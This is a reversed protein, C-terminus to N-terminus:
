VGATRGTELILTRIRLLSLGRLLLYSQGPKYITRSLVGLIFPRTNNRCGRMNEAMDGVYGRSTDRGQGMHPALHHSLVTGRFAAGVGAEEPGAPGAQRVLAM